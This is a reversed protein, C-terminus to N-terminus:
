MSNMKIDEASKELSLENRIKKIYEELEAKDVIIKKTSLAKFLCNNVYEEMEDVIQAIAYKDM